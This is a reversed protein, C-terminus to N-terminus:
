GMPPRHFYGTAFAYLYMHAIVILACLLASAVLGVAPVRRWLWRLGAVAYVVAPPLLFLIYKTKLAWSAQPLFWWVYAAFGIVCLALLPWTERRRITVVVGLLALAEPVLGLEIVSMTLWAPIFKRPYPDSPDGHRSRISFMSMDSWALAHLTTFVSRYVPFSTLDGPKPHPGIVDHLAGLRFTTFEYNAGSGRSAGDMSFGEAASGNSYLPTGYRRVNDVYKWGGVVVAVALIVLGRRVVRWRAPGEILRIAMVAGATTLAVLGSYKTAAALGALVGLWAASGMTTEAPRAFDRVLYFTFAALVATLVIDAEPAYSSIFLCPFVILLAAGALFSAGRSGFLRLLRCGYAIVISSSILALGGLWRLGAADGASPDLWRGFAYFPWGLLYYLPPHFCAWCDEARPLRAHEYLVRVGDPYFDWVYGFPQPSDAVLLARLVIGAAVFALLCVREHRVFWQSLAATIPPLVFSWRRRVLM